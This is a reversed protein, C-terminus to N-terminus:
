HNTHNRIGVYETRTLYREAIISHDSKRLGSKAANRSEEELEEQLKKVDKLSHNVIKLVTEEAGELKYLMVKLAEFKAIIGNIAIIHADVEHLDVKYTMGLSEKSKWNHLMKKIDVETMENGHSDFATTLDKKIRSVQLIMSQLQRWFYFFIEQNKHIANVLEEDSISDKFHDQYAKLFIRHFDDSDKIESALMVIRATIAEIHKLHNLIDERKEKLKISWKREPKKKAEKLFEQIEQEASPLTKGYLWDTYGSGGGPRTPMNAIREQEMREAMDPPIQEKAADEGHHEINKAYEQLLDKLKELMKILRSLNLRDTGKLERIESKREAKLSKRFQELQKQLYKQPDEEYSVKKSGFLRGIVGFIM